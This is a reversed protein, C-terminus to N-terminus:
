VIQNLGTQDFIVGAIPYMHKAIGHSDKVINDAIIDHESIATNCRRSSDDYGTSRSVRGSVMHNKLVIDADLNIPTVTCVDMPIGDEIICAAANGYPGHRILGEMATIGTLVVTISDNIKSRARLFNEKIIRRTRAM